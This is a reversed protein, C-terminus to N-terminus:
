PCAVEEIFRDLAKRTNTLIRSAIFPGLILWLLLMGGLSSYLPLMWLTDDQQLSFLVTFLLGLFLCLAPPFIRAFLGLKRAGGLDAELNLREGRAVFRIRSAGLLPSQRNNRMGPGEFVASGGGREKTRFGAAVLVAAARELARTPDTQLRSTASHRYRDM